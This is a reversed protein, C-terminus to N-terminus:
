IHSAKYNSNKETPWIAVELVENKRMWLLLSPIKKRELHLKGLMLVICKYQNEMPSDGLCRNHWTATYEGWAFLFKMTSM